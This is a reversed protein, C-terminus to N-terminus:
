FSGLFEILYHYLFTQSSCLIVAIWLCQPPFASAVLAGAERMGWEEEKGKERGRVNRGWEGKGEGLREGRGEEERGGLWRGRLWTLAGLSAGESATHPGLVGGRTSPGVGSTLTQHQRRVM